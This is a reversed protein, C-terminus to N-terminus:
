DPLEECFYGTEQMLHIIDRAHLDDSEVRLIRDCDDLAVNWRKVAPLQDLLLGVKQVDKKFRLNTRFIWIMINNGSRSYGPM